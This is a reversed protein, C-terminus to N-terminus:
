VAEVENILLVICLKGYYYTMVPYVTMEELEPVRTVLWVPKKSILDIRRKEGLLKEYDEKYFREIQERLSDNELLGRSIELWTHGGAIHNPFDKLSKLVEYKKSNKEEESYIADKLEFIQELENGRWSTLRVMEDEAYLRALDNQKM